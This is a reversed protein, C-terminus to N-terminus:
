ECAMLRLAELAFTTEQIRIELASFIEELQKGCRSFATQDLIADLCKNSDQSCTEPAPITAGFGLVRASLEWAEQRQENHSALTVEHHRILRRAKEPSMSEFM